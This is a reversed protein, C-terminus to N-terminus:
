CVDRAWGVLVLEGEVSEEDTELRSEHVGELTEGRRLLAL